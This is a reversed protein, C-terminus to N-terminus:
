KSRWFKYDIKKLKIKKVGLWKKTFEHLNNKTTNNKKVQKTIKTTYRYIRNISHRYKYFLQEIDEVMGDWAGEDISWDRLLKLMDSSLDNTIPDIDRFNHKIFEKLTM